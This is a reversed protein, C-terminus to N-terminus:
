FLLHTGSYYEILPLVKEYQKMARKDDNLTYAAPRTREFELLGMEKDQAVLCEPLADRIDQRSTCGQVLRFVMQNVVTCEWLLRGSRELYRNMKDTLSEHLTLREGYPPIRSANKARYFEGQYQFGATDYVAQCTENQKILELLTDDLRKLEALFLHKVIASSNTNEHINKETIQAM